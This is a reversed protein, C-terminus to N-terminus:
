TAVGLLLLGGVLTMTATTVARVGPELEAHSRMIARLKAVDVVHVVRLLDLGRVIGFVAGVALTAAMTTQVAMAIIAVWIIASPIITAVGVGLQVGYGFGYVVGRFEDLWAEDVQRRSSPFRRGSRGFWLDLAVGVMAAVGLIAARTGVSLSGFALRGITGVALALALGGVLSGLIHAGATLGFRNGKVREGFPNISTLM